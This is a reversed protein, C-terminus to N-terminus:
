RIGKIHFEMIQSLCLKVFSLDMGVWMRPRDWSEVMVMWPFGAFGLWGGAHVLVVVLWSRKRSWETRCQLSGVLQQAAQAYASKKSSMRSSWSTWIRTQKRYWDYIYIYNHTHIYIYISISYTHIYIHNHLIYIYLIHRGVICSSRTLFAVLFNEDGLLNCLEVTRATSWRLLATKGLWNSATAMSWPIIPWLM